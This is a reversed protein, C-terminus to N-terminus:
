LLNWCLRFFYRYSSPVHTHWFRIHRKLRYEITFNERKDFKSVYTNICKELDEPHVGESWGDGKEQELTRGTFNLWVDNFFYCSKNTDSMWILAPILNTLFKYDIINSLIQDSM